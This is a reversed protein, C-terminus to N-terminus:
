LTWRWHICTTDYTHKDDFQKFGRIVSNIKFCVKDGSLYFEPSMTIKRKPTVQKWKADLYTRGRFTFSFKKDKSIIKATKNINDFKISCAIYRNKGGVKESVYVGFRLNGSSTGGIYVGHSDGYLYTGSSGFAGGNRVYQDYYGLDSGYYSGYRNKNGTFKSTTPNFYLKSQDAYMHSGTERFRLFNKGGLIYLRRNTHRKRWDYYIKQYSPSNDGSTSGDQFSINYRRRPPTPPTSPPTKGGTPIEIPIPPTAPSTNLYAGSDAMGSAQTGVTETTPVNQHQQVIPKIGGSGGFSPLTPSIPINGQGGIIAGAGAYASLSFLGIIMVIITNKKM